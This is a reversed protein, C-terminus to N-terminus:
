NQRNLLEFVRDIERKYADIPPPSFTIKLLDPLTLKHTQYTEDFVSISDKYIDYVDSRSTLLSTPIEYVCQVSLVQHETNEFMDSVMYYNTVDLLIKDGKLFPESKWSVSSQIMGANVKFDLDSDQIKVRYSRANM